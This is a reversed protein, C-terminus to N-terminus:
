HSHYLNLRGTCYWYSVFGCVMALTALSKQEAAFKKEDKAADRGPSAIVKVEMVQRGLVAGTM